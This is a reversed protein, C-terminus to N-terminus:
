RLKHFVVVFTVIESRPILEFYFGLHFSQRIHNSTYSHLCLNQKLKKIKQVSLKVLTLKNVRLVHSVEPDAHVVRSIDKNRLLLNINVLIFNLITKEVATLISRHLAVKMEVEMAAGLCPTNYMLTSKLGGTRLSMMNAPLPYPGAIGQLGPEQGQGGTVVHHHHERLDAGVEVVHAAAPVHACDVVQGRVLLVVAVGGLLGLLHPHNGPNHLSDSINGHKLNAKIVQVDGTIESFLKYKM